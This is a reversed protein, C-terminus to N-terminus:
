SELGLSNLISEYDRVQASTAGGRVMFPLAALLGNCYERVQTQQDTSNFIEYSLQPGCEIRKAKRLLRFRSPYRIRMLEPMVVPVYLLEYDFDSLTSSAFRENLLPETRKRIDGLTEAVPEYVESSAWIKM